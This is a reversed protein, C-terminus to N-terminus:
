LAEDYRKKHDGVPNFMIENVEGKKPKPVDFPRPPRGSALSFVSASPTTTTRCIRVSEFGKQVEGWLGRRWGEVYM